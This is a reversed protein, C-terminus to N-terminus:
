RFAHTSKMNKNRFYLNEPLSKAPKVSSRKAHLLMACTDTSRCTGSDTLINSIDLFIGNDEAIDTVNLCPAPLFIM